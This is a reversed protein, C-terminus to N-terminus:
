QNDLHNDNDKVYGDTLTKLFAVVDNEEQDTLGLNGIRQDVNEPVAPPPWCTKGFGPDNNGGRCHPLVDRTNYFTFM